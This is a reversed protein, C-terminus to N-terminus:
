CGRRWRRRPAQPTLPVGGVADALPVERRHLLARRGAREVLPRESAAEIPEVPEEFTLGILEVGFQHAVVVRDFRRTTGFVAIVDAFVHDVLQHLHDAVALTHPGIAREERVHRETRRVSRVLRRLAVQLLVAALVVFAPVDNTLAPVFTLEFEAHDGVPGFERGAVGTDIGPVVEGLILLLDTRSELFREGREEIVGVVLDTSQDVAQTVHAFEVVGHEHDECVVAGRLLAAGETHHVLHLEEVADEFVAVRHDVLEVVDAARVAVGVVRPAPRLAAVRRELPVLLVGVFAPTCTGIITWAGPVM